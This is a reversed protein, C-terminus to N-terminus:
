RAKLLLAGGLLLGPILLPKLQEIFESKIAAQGEPTRAIMQGGRSLGARYVADAAQQYPDSYQGSYAQQNALNEMVQAEIMAKEEPSAKTWRAILNAGGAAIMGPIGGTVLGMGAAPVTKVVEKGVTYVGKGVAAAGKGIAKFPTAIVDFIGGLEPDYMFNPSIYGYPNLYGTDGPDWGKQWTGSPSSAGSPYMAYDGLKPYM